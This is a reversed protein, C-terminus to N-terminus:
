KEFWSRISSPKQGQTGKIGVKTKSLESFLTNSSKTTAIRQLFKLEPDKNILHLLFAAKIREEVNKTDKLSDLYKDFSFVPLGDQDKEEQNLLFEKLEDAL